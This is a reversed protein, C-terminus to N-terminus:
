NLLKRRRKRICMICSEMRKATDVVRFGDMEVVKVPNGCIESDKIEYKGDPNVELLHLDKGNDVEELCYVIPGRLVAVKGADERVKEDAEMLLLPKSFHLKLVDKESWAKKM